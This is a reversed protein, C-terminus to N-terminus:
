IKLQHIALRKLYSLSSYGTGFDDISIRVGMDELAQFRANVEESHEIIVSETIELELRLAPIGTERLVRGVAEVFGERQFQQAYCHVAVQLQPRGANHWARAQACAEHLVWEGIPGILGTEEAAPIFESPLVMGRRPHRWRVLAEFGVIAGTKLDLQPQYHLTFE